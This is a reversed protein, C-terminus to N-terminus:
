LFFLKQTYLNVFNVSSHEREGSIKRIIFFDLLSRNIGPPRVNPIYGTGCIVFAPFAVFSFKVFSNNISFNM